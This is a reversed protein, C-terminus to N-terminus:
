SEPQTTYLEEEQVTLVGREKCLTAEQMGVEKKAAAEDALVGARERRSKLPKKKLVSQSFHCILFSVILTVCEFFM